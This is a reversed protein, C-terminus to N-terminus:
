RGSRARTQELVDAPTRGNADPLGADAGAEVLAAMVETAGARAARHLPTDRNRDREDLSLGAALLLPLIEAHDLQHLWHLLTGGDGDRLAPDFGDALVALLSDTDGHRALAFFDRRILRIRKPVPGQGTRWARVAAACGSIPGGLGGLVLERRLEQETHYEASLSGDTVRLTHPTPGGCRIRIVPVPAPPPIRWDQRRDPFLAEHVLPHLEDPRLLRRNLLGAEIPAVMAVPDPGGLREGGETRRVTAPGGDIVDVATTVSRGGTLTTRGYRRALRRAEAALVPLTTGLRVMEVETWWQWRHRDRADDGLDVDVALGAAGYAEVVRNDGLLHHITEMETARDVPWEATSPGDSRCPTGDPRHWALRTPSAGYAWRRQEVADAHWCWDPLDYWRDTLRDVEGVRLIVRQPASVSNPLFAILVPAPPRAVGPLGPRASGSPPVESPSTRLPETRRSLVVRAQPELVGAAVRPLFRRLLDPAFGALDAAIRGAEQDGYRNAVDRLNLHPDFRAAACAGRWDGQRRRETVATVMSAPAFHALERARRRWDGQRGM